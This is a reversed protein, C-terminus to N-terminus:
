QVKWSGDPQRCATGFADETNGGITVTQQYERCYVNNNTHYTKTPTVTGSNGSDPNAWTITQGSRSSELANQTAREAELRDKEDLQKGIGGGILAGFFVGAGTALIAGSGGGIQSGLFGGLAAGALLGGIEKERGSECGTTLILFPLVLVAFVLRKGGRRRTSSEPMTM